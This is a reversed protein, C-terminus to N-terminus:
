LALDTIMNEEKQITRIGEDLKCFLDWVLASNAGDIKKQELLSVYYPYLVSYLNFSVCATVHKSKSTKPLKKILKQYDENVLNFMVYVFPREREKISDMCQKTFLCLYKYDRVSLKVKINKM